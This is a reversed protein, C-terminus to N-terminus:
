NNHRIQVKKFKFNMEKIDDKNIMLQRLFLALFYLNSRVCDTILEDNMKQSIGFTIFTKIIGDWTIASDSRLKGFLNLLKSHQSFFQQRSTYKLEKHEFLYKFLPYNSFYQKLLKATEMNNVLVLENRNVMRSLLKGRVTLGSFLKNVDINSDFQLVLFNDEHCKLLDGEVKNARQHQSIATFLGTVLSVIGVVGLAAGVSENIEKQIFLDKNALM